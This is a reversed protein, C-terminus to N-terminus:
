EHRNTTIKNCCALASTGTTWASPLVCLSVFFSYAAGARVVYHVVDAPHILRLLEYLAMSPLLECRIAALPLM